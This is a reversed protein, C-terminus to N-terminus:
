SVHNIEDHTIFLWGDEIVSGIDPHKITDTYNMMPHFNKIDQILGICPKHIDHVIILSAPGGPVSLPDHLVRHEKINKYFPKKTTSTSLCSRGPEFACVQVDRYVTGLEEVVNGGLSHGIMEWQLDPEMKRTHKFTTNVRFTRNTTFGFAIESDNFLDRLPSNDLDTGRVLGYGRKLKNDKLFVCDENISLIELRLLREKYFTYKQALDRIMLEVRELPSEGFEPNDLSYALDSALIARYSDEESLNIGDQNIIIQAVM